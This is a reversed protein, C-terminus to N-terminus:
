SGYGSPRSRVDGGEGYWSESCEMPGVCWELCVREGDVYEGKASLGVDSGDLGVIAGTVTKGVGVARRVLKGVSSFSLVIAGVM